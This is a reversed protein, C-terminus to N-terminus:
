NKDTGSPGHGVGSFPTHDIGSGKAELAAKVADYMGGFIDAYERANDRISAILHMTQDGQEKVKSSFKIRVTNGEFGVGSWPPLEILWEASERSVLTITGGLGERQMMKKIKNAVRRVRRQDPTNPQHRGENM